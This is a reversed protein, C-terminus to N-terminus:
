GYEPKTTKLDIYIYIYIYNLDHLYNTVESILVYLSHIHGVIYELQAWITSRGSDMDNNPGVWGGDLVDPLPAWNTLIHLGM